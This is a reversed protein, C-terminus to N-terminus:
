GCAPASSGRPGRTYPVRGLYGWRAYRVGSPGGRFGLGLWGVRGAAGVDSVAEGAAVRVARDREAGGGAAPLAATGLGGGPARGRRASM